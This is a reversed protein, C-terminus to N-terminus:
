YKRGGLGGFNAEGNTAGGFFFGLCKGGCGSTGHLMGEGSPVMSPEMTTRRQQAAPGAAGILGEEVRETM